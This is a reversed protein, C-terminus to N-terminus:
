SSDLNVVVYYDELEDRWIRRLRWRGVGTWSWYPFPMQIISYYCQNPSVTTEPKNEHLIRMQIKYFFEDSWVFQMKMELKIKPDRSKLDLFRIDHLRVSTQGTDNIFNSIRLICLLPSIHLGVSQRQAVSAPCIFIIFATYGNMNKLKSRMEPDCSRFNFLLGSCSQRDDKTCKWILYTRMQIKYFFTDSQM